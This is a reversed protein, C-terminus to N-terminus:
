NEVADIIQNVSSQQKRRSLGRERLIRKLQSMSLCIGHYMVLFALIEVYNIGMCLYREILSDRDIIRGSQDLFPLNVCHVERTLICVVLLKVSIHVMKFCYTFEIFDFNFLM